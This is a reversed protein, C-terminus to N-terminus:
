DARIELEIEDRIPLGDNGTAPIEPKLERSKDITGRYITALQFGMIEPSGWRECLLSRIWNRDLESVVQIKMLDGTM